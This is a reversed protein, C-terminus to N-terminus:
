NGNILHNINYKVDKRILQSGYYAIDLLHCFISSLLEPDSPLSDNWIQGQYTFDRSGGGEPNYDELNYILHNLRKIAYFQLKSFKMHILTPSGFLDYLCNMKEILQKARMLQDREKQTKNILARETIQSFSGQLLQTMTMYEFEQKSYGQKSESQKKLLDAKEYIQYVGLVVDQLEATEELVLCVGFYRFM